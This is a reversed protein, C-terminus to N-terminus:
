KIFFVGSLSDKKLYSTLLLLYYTILLSSKRRLRFNGFLNFCMLGSLAGFVVTIGGLIPIPVRQLKRADPNDVINKKVAVKLIYPHIWLTCCLAVTASILIPLLNNM